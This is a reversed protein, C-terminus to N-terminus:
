DLQELLKPGMSIENTKDEIYDQLISVGYNHSYVSMTNLLNIKNTTLASRSVIYKNKMKKKPFM